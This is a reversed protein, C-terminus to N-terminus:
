KYSSPKVCGKRTYKKLRIDRDREYETRIRVEAKRKKVVENEEDKAQRFSIYNKCKSHCGVYRDECNYCPANM